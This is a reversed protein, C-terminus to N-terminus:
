IAHLGGSPDKYTLKNTTSSFYLSNNAANADAVTPLFVSGDPNDGGIPNGVSDESRRIAATQGSAARAAIAVVSAAGPEVHLRSSSQPTVNVGLAVTLIVPDIQFVPSGSGIIYNNTGTLPGAGAYWSAGPKKFLFSASASADLTEIRAAATSANAIHLEDQPDTTGVGVKLTAPDVYVGGQALNGAADVRLADGPTAGTIAAGIALSIGAAQLAQIAQNLLAVHMGTLACVLVSGAPFAQDTWGSLVAVGSLVDGALGTAEFVAMKTFDLPQGYANIATPAFMTFWLPAAASVVPFGDAALRAALIAGYGQALTMTGSGAVYALQLQTQIDSPVSPFTTM